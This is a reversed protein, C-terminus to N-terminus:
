LRMLADMMARVTTMVRANAAYANQLNLLNSMEEDINVAAGDNFRQQLANLVVDQGQKLNAAAQAADGQHSIVQRMYSGISGTFPATSTGIGGSTGFTLTGNTLRDLLFNPRTADGVDTPPSTSFIVLRSPDSLLSPNVAIRGAFGVSQGGLSTPAGTYPTGGDVFFPFEPGGDALGTITTTASVADINVLDAGGDDLVRLTTGSPNSFQVGTTGLTANLQAVVSAMGGSFDLGVVKDNPDATATNALPLAAPDDVRVLTLTRQQGSTNDTYTVHVANGSLLSGVDIDFGAQPGSTVATGNTMRDSLTRALGAAIEDLQSQAQVLVQDRMELYGAIAGSHISNNAILDVDGGNAAKLVITGVTRKSPDSDWTSSATMAGKADFALTSAELGVLQLGSNTFVNVQNHDTPVVTIDMLTSLEDIQRDREDLLTATTADNSSVTGLQQNIEAIRQMAENARNVADALGLEADSRLGQIDSSMSNLQQTLVQAASLVATRASSSDPSTSLAQLANTLNNYVTELASDSGPVGYVSQLRDYFRARLDAYSAGSTEVRMQRQIYQDLTRNIETTRVSIGTAGATTTVQVPSKRVYGPTDANAVNGAVISLGVQNARLGAVATALAQSLSM